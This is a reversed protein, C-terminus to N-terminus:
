REGAPCTHDEGSRGIDVDTKRISRRDSPGVLGIEKDRNMEISKAVRGGIAGLDPDGLVGALCADIQGLGHQPTQHRDRPRRVATDPPGVPANELSAPMSRTRGCAQGLYGEQAVGILGGPQGTRCVAIM